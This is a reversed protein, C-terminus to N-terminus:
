SASRKPEANLGLEPLASAPLWNAMGRRWVLTERTITGTSIQQRLLALDVPGHRIGGSAFYWDSQPLPPPEDPSPAGSGNAGNGGVRQGMVFGMGMGVGAGAGCNPNRAADRMADASQLKAYQDLNGIVTMKARADLASEVEAPLSVNEVVLQMLELGYQEFESAVRQQVRSGLDKYHAALELVSTPTEAMVSSFRAVVLDRLQGVIDEVSFISNTGVIERVFRAPDQVRLAYTGFARLRVAGLQPDRIIVPNSTGWKRNTFQKTNVFLVEAKFPSEFGYKWGRLTSLLPLNAATLTHRGPRFVDAINGQDVFMAIQGPRVILQAGNKIENKSRAFRYVMTDGSEDLWDVIDILEGAIFERITVTRELFLQSFWFV